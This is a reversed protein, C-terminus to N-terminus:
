TVLVNSSVSQQVGLINNLAGVISDVDSGGGGHVTQNITANTQPVTLNVLAVYQRESLDRLLKINEDAINVDQNIKEVSGVKDVGSVNGINDTMSGFGDKNDGLTGTYKSITEIPDIKLNDIKEGINRFFEGSAAATEKVDINNMREIKIDNEGLNEKVWSKVEDRFGSVASTLDSDLMADIVGAATEVIGLIGDFVDAFMRVTAGLPDNWVNAFFEAFSAIVNWLAVFINYGVAYITGFIQGVWGGIEEMGVGLKQAAILASALVAIFLLLPLNAVIWAGATALAGGVTSLAVAIAASNIIALMVGIAALVPLIFGLNDVIFGAGTTLMGIVGEAVDALIDIAGVIGGLAKQASDSNLFENINEAVGSLSYTAANKILEWANTWTMPVSKFEENINDTAGLMANKVIDSTIKGEDALKRVEKVPKGMYDAITQIINPATGSVANFQESTLVGAGLAKTLLESASAADQQSAGASKLQKNMNEAFAVVEDSSSFADGAGKALATVADVTGLYSMRTRQASQYILEQIRSTEELDNSAAGNGEASANESPHFSKNMGNVRTNSQSMKDSLGILGKGATVGLSGIKKITDKLKKGFEVSQKLRINYEDQEEEAKTTNAVVKKINENIENMGQIAVFQSDEGMKEISATIRDLQMVTESSSQRINGIIAGAAGGMSRRMTLETKVAAQSIRGLQEVSSNGLDIFRSFSESFQDSVVLEGTITEM